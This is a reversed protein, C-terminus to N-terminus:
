IFTSPPTPAYVPTVTLSRSSVVALAGGGSFGSGAVIAELRAQVQINHTGPSIGKAVFCFSNAAVYNLLAAATEDPPIIGTFGRAVNEFVVQGPEAVFGDVLVQMTIMASEGSTQAVAAGTTVDSYFVGAACQASVNCFFTNTSKDTSFNGQLITLFGSDVIGTVGTAAGVGTEAELVQYTSSNVVYGAGVASAPDSGSSGGGGVRRSRKYVVVTLALLVVVVAFMLGSVLAAGWQM